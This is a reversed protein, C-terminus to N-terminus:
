PRECDVLEDGADIFFDVGEGCDIYDAGFGGMLKDDGPGGYLTNNGEGGHLTDAGENGILTDDGNDGSLLDDGGNGEAYDVGDGDPGDGSGAWWGISSADGAFHDDGDGLYATDNGNGAAVKEWESTGQFEDDWRTGTCHLYKDYKYTRPKKCEIGTNILVAAGLVATLFLLLLVASAGVLVGRRRIFNSSKVTQEKSLNKRFLIIGTPLAHIM